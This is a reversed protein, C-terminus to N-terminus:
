FAGRAWSPYPNGASKGHLGNPGSDFCTTGTGESMHWLGLTNADPIFPTTQPTFNSTYRAINSIRVEQLVGGLSLTTNTNGLRLPVAEVTTSGTLALADGLKGDLFFRATAGDYSLAIHHWCSLSVTSAWYGPYTVTGGAVMQALAYGSSNVYLEQGSGGDRTLVVQSGGTRAGLLFWSEFTM